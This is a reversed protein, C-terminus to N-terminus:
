HCLFAIFSAHMQLEHENNLLAPPDSCAQAGREAQISPFSMSDVHPFDQQYFQIKM